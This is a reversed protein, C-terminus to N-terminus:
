NVERKYLLVIDTNFNWVQNDANHLDFNIDMCDINVTIQGQSVKDPVLLFLEDNCGYKSILDNILDPSDIIKTASNGVLFVNPKLSLDQISLTCVSLTPIVKSLKIIM